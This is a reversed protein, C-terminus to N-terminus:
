THIIYFENTRLSLDGADQKDKATYVNFLCENETVVMAEKAVLV